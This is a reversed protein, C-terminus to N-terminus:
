TMYLMRSVDGLVKSVLFSLVSCYNSSCIAAKQIRNQIKSMWINFEVPSSCIIIRSEVMPGTIEFRHPGGDDNRFERITMGSLPLIGQYVFKQRSHDLSLILLHFSFLVLYRDNKEENHYNCLAVLSSWVIEGFSRIDAGEWGSIQETYIQKNLDKQTKGWLLQVHAADTTKKNAITCEQQTEIISLSENLDGNYLLVFDIQSELPMIRQGKRGKTFSELALDLTENVVNPIVDTLVECNTHLAPNCNMELLWVKFDEDILFDCGILDFYGLKCDLKPKAACFCHMTIQQMRKTFVTFVWDQPLGKAAAFKENIYNNLREMSWVTEEKLENYLPNKKQMYQNTLHATLDDSRPDYSNCTLRVYGHRFFVVYPVTSAILLFSRVDFKKSELLLPNHIYRQVIRAQPSKFPQKRYVPNDEINQLKARFDAIDEQSKLLFIGRGQNMGTPKCIWVQGENSLAFFSEREDKLDMRFTEPFFDDLKLLKSPKGKKFKSMVREYERLSSLLGIKTTLVKNNPIQYILQEGERFSYYNAQSKVECWKLKYDERSKDYIRQWGKSVCYGNVLANGNGGGIYFLPVSVKPDENKKEKISQQNVSDGLRDMEPGAKQNPKCGTAKADNYPVSELPYFGIEENQLQVVENEGLSSDMNEEPLKNDKAHKSVSTETPVTGLIPEGRNIVEMGASSLDSEMESIAKPVLESNDQCDKAVTRNYDSLKDSTNEMQPEFHKEEENKLQMIHNGSERETLDIEEEAPEVQEEELYFISKNGPLQLQPNWKHKSCHSTCIGQLWTEISKFHYKMEGYSTSVFKYSQFAQVKGQQWRAGLSREGDGLWIEVHVMDHIQRKRKPSFYTGSIFVLDGPKMEEESTLVLPLMDYQYAQNGPGIVFGFDDKLDRMVKRILGCCDLFLPSEYEPTGPEHYKKAYPVGIYSKAQELFKMRLWWRQDPDKLQLHINEKLCKQKIREEQRRKRFKLFAEQISQNENEKRGEEGDEGELYVTFSDSVKKM